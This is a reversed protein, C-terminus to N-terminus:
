MDITDRKADEAGLDMSKGHFIVTELADHLSCFASIWPDIFRILNMPFAHCAEFVGRASNNMSKVWAEIDRETLIFKADPYFSTFEEVFFQPVEVVTKLIDCIM